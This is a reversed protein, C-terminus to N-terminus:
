FEPCKTLCIQKCGNQFVTNREYSIPADYAEFEAETCERIDYKPCEDEEDWIFFRVPIDIFQKSTDM